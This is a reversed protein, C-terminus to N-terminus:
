LSSALGGTGAAKKYSFAHSLGHNPVGCLPVPGAIAMQLPNFSPRQVSASSTTLCLSLLGKLIGPGPSGSSISGSVIAGLLLLFINAEAPKSSLLGAM